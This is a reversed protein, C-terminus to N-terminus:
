EMARYAPFFSSELLTDVPVNIAGARLEVMQRYHAENTLLRLTSFPFTRPSFGAKFRLLQDNAGGVGGGLHLYRNGRGKAWLAAHHLLLHFPSKSLFDSKTGGLHAQTIGSCEFFICAASVQGQGEVICCFVHETMAALRQFYSRDFYYNPKAKVRKMTQDYTDIFEDLYDALLVMRPAFGAKKCKNITTRHTERMGQWLAEEDQLLDIAVTIGNDTFQQAPFLSRLEQNLIPHMRFFGSCVRRAELTHHLAQLARRAFEPERGPDNLLIGPYGYPSIVDAVGVNFSGEPFLSNCSRVLYPLFLVKEGDRALFAEPVAQIREGELSVYLPHHYFDHPLRGLCELWAPNEAGLIEVEM